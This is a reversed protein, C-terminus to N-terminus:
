PKDTKEQSHCQNLINILREKFIRLAEDKCFDITFKDYPTRKDGSYLKIQPHRQFYQIYIECSKHPPYNYWTKPNIWWGSEKKYDYFYLGIVPSKENKNWQSVPFHLRLECYIKETKGDTSQIHKTTIWEM